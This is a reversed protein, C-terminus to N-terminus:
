RLLLYYTGYLQGYIGLLPLLALPVRFYPYSLSAYAPSVDDSPVCGLAARLLVVRGNPDPRRLPTVNRVVVVDCRPDHEGPRM